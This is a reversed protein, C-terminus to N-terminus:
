SEPLYDHIGASYLKGLIEKREAFFADNSLKKNTIEM